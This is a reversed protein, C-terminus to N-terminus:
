MNSSAWLPAMSGNDKKTGKSITIETTRIRKEWKSTTMLVAADNLVWTNKIICGDRLPALSSYDLKKLKDEDLTITNRHKILLVRVTFDYKNDSRWIVLLQHNTSTNDANPKTSEKRQLRYILVSIFERKAENKELILV